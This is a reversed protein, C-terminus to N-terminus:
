DGKCLKYIYRHWDESVTSSEFVGPVRNLRIKSGTFVALDLDDFDYRMRLEEVRVARLGDMKIDRYHSNVHLTIEPRSYRYEKIPYTLGKFVGLTEVDYWARSRNLPFVYNDGAEEFYKYLGKTWPEYKEAMPLAVLRFPREMNPKAKRRSLKIKFVAVQITQTLNDIMQEIAAENGELRWKIIQLSSPNPSDIEELWADTGKPGYILEKKEGSCREAVMEVPRAAGLLYLAKLLMQLETDKVNQIRQRVEIYSALSM